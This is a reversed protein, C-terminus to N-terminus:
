MRGRTAAGRRRSWWWLAGAATAFGVVGLGYRRRQPPAVPRAVAGQPAGLGGGQARQHDQLPDFIEENRAEGRSVAVLHARMARVRATKGPDLVAGQAAFRTAMELYTDIDQIARQPNVRQFVEARCYFADPDDRGLEVAREIAREAEAQHGLRFHSVALYIYLRPEQPYSARVRELYELCRAYLALKEERSRGNNHAAYHATVGAIFQKLPDARDADAERAARDADSPMPSTSAISAVVMGLVGCCPNERALATFTAIAERYRQARYAEFGQQYRARHAPSLAAPGNPAAAGADTVAPLAPEVGADVARPPLAIPREAPAAPPPEVRSWRWASETRRVQAAVEEVLGAPAGRVPRLSLGFHETRVASAPARSPHQGEIVVSEAGQCRYRAVVVLHDLSVDRLQCRGAAFTGNFMRLATAEMGPPIVWEPQQAAATACLSSFLLAAVLGQARRSM